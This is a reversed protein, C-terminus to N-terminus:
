VGETVLISKVRGEAIASLSAKNQPPLELTENAQISTSINQESPKGIEIGMLNFQEKKLHVEETHADHGHNDQGHEDHETHAGHGHDDEENVKSELCSTFLLTIVIIIHINKM